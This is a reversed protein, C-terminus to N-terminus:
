VLQSPPTTPGIPPPPRTVPGSQFRSADTEAGVEAQCAACVPRELDVCRKHYCHKCFFRVYPPMLGQGCAACRAEDSAMPQGALGDAVRNMREMQDALRQLAASGEDADPSVDALLLEGPLEANRTVVDTIIHAAVVGECNQIIKKMFQARDRRGGLKRWGDNSVFRRFVAVWDDPPLKPDRLVFDVLEDTEDEGLLVWLADSPRQIRVLLEVIGRWFKASVCVSLIHAVDYNISPDGLLRLALEASAVDPHGYFSRPDPPQRPIVLSLLGNALTPTLVDYINRLFQFCHRPFGWFLKLFELEHTSGQNRWVTEAIQEISKASQPQRLLAPGFKLLMSRGIPENAYKLIKLAAEVLRNQEILSYISTMSVGMVTSLRDIATSLRDIAAKNLRNKTLTEIALDADFNRLFRQADVALLDIQKASKSRPSAPQSRVNHVSEIFGIFATLEAQYDGSALMTFLLRTLDPKGFGRQHLNILYKILYPILRPHYFKSLVVSAELVGITTIFLRLSTLYDEQAFAAIAESTPDDVLARIPAPDLHLSKCAEIADLYRQADLFDCVPHPFSRAFDEM